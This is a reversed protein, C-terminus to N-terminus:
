HRSRHHCAPGLTSTSVFIHGFEFTTFYDFSFTYYHVQLQTQM